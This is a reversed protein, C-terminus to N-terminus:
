IKCFGELVQGDVSILQDLRITLNNELVAYEVSEKTYLDLIRTAITQQGNENRYEINVTKRKVSTAELIDYFNCDIPQYPKM